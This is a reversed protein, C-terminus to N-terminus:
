ISALDVLRTGKKMNCSACLPQVNKLRHEGKPDIHDLHEAQKGCKFCLFEPAHPIMNWSEHIAFGREKAHSKYGKASRNYKRKSAKVAEPNEKQWEKVRTQITHKNEKYYGKNYEKQQAKFSEKNEELWAAQKARGRESKNYKRKRTKNHEHKKYYNERAKAKLREKNLEYYTM